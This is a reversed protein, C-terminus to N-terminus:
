AEIEYKGEPFRRFFNSPDLEDFSPEASEFALQTMGQARLRGSSVINLLPRDDPGEILMSTWPGGDIDAHIGLDGDTDNLEFFLEAVPFSM